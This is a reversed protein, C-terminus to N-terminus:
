MGNLSIYSRPAAVMKQLPEEFREKLVKFALANNEEDTKNWDMVQAVLDDFKTFIAVVPVLPIIDIFKILLFSAFDVM